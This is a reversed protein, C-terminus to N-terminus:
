MEKLKIIGSKLKMIIITKEPMQDLLLVLRASLVILLRTALAMSNRSHAESLPNRDGNATGL